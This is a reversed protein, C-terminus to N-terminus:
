KVKAEEKPMIIIDYQDTKLQIVDRIIEHCPEEAGNLHNLLRKLTTDRSSPEEFEIYGNALNVLSCYERTRYCARNRSAYNNRFSTVIFYKIAIGQGNIAAVIDGNNLTISRDEKANEIGVIKIDAM